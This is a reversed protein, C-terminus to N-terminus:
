IQSSLLLRVEDAAPKYPPRNALSKVLGENTIATVSNDYPKFSIDSSTKALGEWDVQSEDRFIQTHFDKHVWDDKSDLQCPAPMSRCLVALRATSDPHLSGLYVAHLPKLGLMRLAYHMFGTTAIFYTSGSPGRYAGCRANFVLSEQAQQKVVTEVVMLGGVKCLGRVLALLGFPDIMHYMAGSFVILDFFRGGLERDLRSPLERLQIGPFYRFEAGYRKQLFYVKESLDLRDYAAVNRAGARKLLIPILGEQTGVDLCDKGSVDVNRLFKRTLAVNPAEM